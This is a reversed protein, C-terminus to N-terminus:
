VVQGARTSIRFREKVVRLGKEQDLYRWGGVVMMAGEASSVM